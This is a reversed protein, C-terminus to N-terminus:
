IGSTQGDGKLMMCTYCLYSCRYPRVFDFISVAVWCILAFTLINSRTLGVLHKNVIGVVM